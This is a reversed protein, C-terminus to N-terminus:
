SAPQAPQAPPPDFGVWCQAPGLETRGAAKLYLFFQMRYATICKLVADVLGRGASCPSGWPMQREAALGDASLGRITDTLRTMQEDMAAAFTDATVAEAAKELAEGEDWNGVAMYRAPVLACTTLYQMLELMTRQGDTPKYGLSDPTVKTGLHKIITVEHKLSGILQDPTIM